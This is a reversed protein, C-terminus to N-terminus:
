LKQTGIFYNKIQQHPSFLFFYLMPDKINNGLLTDDTLVTGENKVRAVLYGMFHVPVVIPHEMRSLINNQPTTWVSPM